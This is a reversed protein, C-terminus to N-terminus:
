ETVIPITFEESNADKLETEFATLKEKYAIILEQSRDQIAKEFILCKAEAIQEQTLKDTATEKNADAVYSTTFKDDLAVTVNNLVFEIKSEGDQLVYDALADEIKVLTVKKDVIKVVGGFQGGVQLIPAGFDDIIQEEEQAVEKVIAGTDDRKGFAVFSIKTGFLKNQLTREKKLIM